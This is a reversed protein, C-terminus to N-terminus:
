VFIPRSRASGRLRETTKDPEVLSQLATFIYAYTIPQILSHLLCVWVRPVNHLINFLSASWGYCEFMALWLYERLSGEVLQHRERQRVFGRNVFQVRVGLFLVALETM